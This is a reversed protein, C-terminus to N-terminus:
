LKEAWEANVLEWADGDQRWQMTVDYVQGSTPLLANSGGTLAATCTVTAGGEVMAIDLPGLTVGVDRNRFFVLQALRQAGKRDMGDPGIFDQALGDALTVADRQEIAAQMQGITRRLSEEPPTRSCGALQPVLVLGLVLAVWFRRM